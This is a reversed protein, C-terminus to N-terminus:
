TLFIITYPLFVTIAPCLLLMGQLFPLKLFWEVEKNKLKIKLYSAM